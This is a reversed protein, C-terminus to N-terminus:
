IHTNREDTRLQLLIESHSVDGAGKGCITMVDLLNGKVIGSFQLRSGSPEGGRASNDGPERHDERPSGALERAKGLPRAFESEGPVNHRAPVEGCEIGFREEPVNRRDIRDGKAFTLVDASLEGRNKGAGRVIRTAGVQASDL